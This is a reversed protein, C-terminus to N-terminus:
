IWLLFSIVKKQLELPSLTDKGRWEGLVSRVGKSISFRTTIGETEGPSGTLVLREVVKPPFLTALPSSEAIRLVREPIL